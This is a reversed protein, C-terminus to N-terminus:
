YKIISNSLHTGTGIQSTGAAITYTIDGAANVSRAGTSMSHWGSTDRTLTKEYLTKYTSAWKTKDNGLGAHTLNATIADLVLKEAEAQSPKPGFTNGVLKTNIITEAEKLSIKYAEAYDDCHEQEGVKVLNSMAASLKYYVDKGGEQTGTKHTGASIYFSGSAGENAATTLTPKANWDSGTQAANHAFDPAKYGAPWDTYGGVGAGGGAWVDALSKGVPPGSIRPGNGTAIHRMAALSVPQPRIAIMAPASSEEEPREEEPGEESSEAAEPAAENPRPEEEPERPAGEIITKPYVATAGFDHGADPPTIQEASTRRPAGFATAPSPSDRAFAHQTLARESM